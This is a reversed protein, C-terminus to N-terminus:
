TGLGGAVPQFDVFLQSGGGRGGALFHKLKKPVYVSYLFSSTEKMKDLMM